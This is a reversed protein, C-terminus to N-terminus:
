PSSKLIVPMLWYIQKAITEERLKALAQSRASHKEGVEKTKSDLEQKVSSYERELQSLQHKTNNAETQQRVNDEKLESIIRDKDTLALKMTQTCAALDSQQILKDNQDSIEKRAAVLEEEKEAM